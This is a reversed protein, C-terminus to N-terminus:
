PRNESLQAEANEAEDEVAERQEVEPRQPPQPLTPNYTTLPQRRQYNPRDRLDKHPGYSPVRPRPQFFEDRAKTLMQYEADTLHRLFLCDRLRHGQKCCGLM